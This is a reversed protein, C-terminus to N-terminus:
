GFVAGADQRSYREALNVGKQEALNVRENLAGLLSFNMRM